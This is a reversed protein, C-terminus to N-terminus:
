LQIDTFLHTQPLQHLVRAPTAALTGTQSLLRSLAERKNEGAAFIVSYTIKKLLHMTTTVRLPHENKHAANYATVLQTTDAPMFLTEFLQPNEPYPMMGSIHGDPGIGLTAIVEGSPTSSFWNQLQQNFRAALSAQTENQMIRTDIWKASTQLQDYFATKMIQAMNNISSDPSYREDLPAITLNSPLAQLDILDLLQLSSGGSVLFLVPQNQAAVQALGQNLQHAAEALPQQSVNISTLFTAHHAM